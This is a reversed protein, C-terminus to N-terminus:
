PIACSCDYLNSMVSQQNNIVFQRLAAECTITNSYFVFVDRYFLFYILTTNLIKM